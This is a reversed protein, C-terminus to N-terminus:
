SVHALDALVAERVAPLRDLGPPYVLRSVPVTATVRATFEFQRLLRPEDIVVSNFTNKILELHASARSLRAVEVRARGSGAMSGHLVYISRLPRPRRAWESSRLPYVSKRTGPAVSHGSRGPMLTHATDPWLKIRPLGPNALYRGRSPALVAMDDTMVRGGASLFSAALTSKGFGSDGMLGFTHGGVDVVTLHFPEIGLRLLAFSLLHGFVNTTFAEDYGEGTKWGRVVTGDPSVLAEFLGPWVFHYSGDSLLSAVNWPTEDRAV